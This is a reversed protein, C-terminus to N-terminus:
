AGVADGGHPEDVGSDDGSASRQRRATMVREGVDRLEDLDPLIEALREWRLNRRRDAAAGSGSADEGARGCWWLQVRGIDKLVRPRLPQGSFEDPAAETLQTHFEDSVLVTGPNAINVIRHAVNVTPGFYDGERLLVPGTALGVRVDSLLEDNAYAEALELGIRAASVVDNVVFMVEDGIMKVVRGGLGTVIDHALEEFRQVVSALEEESLHQSLLTFGVMDAFGVSLPPSSGADGGVTQLLMTRRTAAQLHRRWVFEILRAMAPLTSDAVSTFADAALVSDEGGLRGRVDTQVETDAIRAMSSGIVRAMQVATEADAAGLAVLGQFLRVAEIDFDTFAPEDEEVDLFGLARWLRRLLVDPMGTAEEVQRRTYRRPVPILLRDVALLDLVDAEVAADIEADTAGVEKLRARVHELAAQHPADLADDGPAGDV